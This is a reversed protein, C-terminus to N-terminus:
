KKYDDLLKQARIKMRILEKIKMELRQNIKEAWEKTNLEKKKDSRNLSWECFWSWDRFNKMSFEKCFETLDYFFINM